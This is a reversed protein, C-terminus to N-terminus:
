SFLFNLSSSKWFYVTHSISVKTPPWGTVLLWLSFGSFSNFNVWFTFFFGNGMSVISFFSVMNLRRWIIHHWRMRRIKRWLWMVIRWMWRVELGIWGDIWILMYIRIIVILYSVIRIWLLGLVIVIYGLLIIGILGILIRAWVHRGVMLSMVHNIFWLIMVISIFVMFILKRFNKM